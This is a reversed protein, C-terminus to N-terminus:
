LHIKALLIHGLLEKVEIHWKKIVIHKNTNKLNLDFKIYYFIM